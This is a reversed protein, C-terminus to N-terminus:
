TGNNLNFTPGETSLTLISHERWEPARRSDAWALEPVKWGTHLATTSFGGSAMWDTRHIYSPPHLVSRPSLDSKREGFFGMMDNLFLLWMINSFLSFVPTGKLVMLITFDQKIGIEYSSIKINFVLADSCHWTKLPVRIYYTVIKKIIRNFSLSPFFLTTKLALLLIALKTQFFVYKPRKNSMEFLVSWNLLCGRFLGM